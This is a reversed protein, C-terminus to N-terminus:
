TAVAGPAAIECHFAVPSAFPARASGATGYMCETGGSTCTVSVGPGSSASLDIAEAPLAPLIILVVAAIVATLCATRPTAPSSPM